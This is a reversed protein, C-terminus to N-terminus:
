KLIISKAYSGLFYFAMSKDKLEVGNYCLPSYGNKSASAKTRIQMIKNPGNITHLTQGTLYAHKVVAAIYSYDEALKIRHEADSHLDIVKAAVFNNQKDFGVLLTKELKSFVKSDEFEVTNSIIEDLCHGLMTIAVPQGLKFSKVDGDVCDKLSKSNPIGLAIELMNGRYGKNKTPAPVTSKDLVLLKKAAEPITLLEMFNTQKVLLLM